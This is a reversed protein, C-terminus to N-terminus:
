ASYREGTVQMHKGLTKDWAEYSSVFYDTGQSRKKYVPYGGLMETFLGLKLDDDRIDPDGKVRVLELLKSIHGSRFGYGDAGDPMANPIRRIHGVNQKLIFLLGDRLDTRRRYRQLYVDQLTKKM